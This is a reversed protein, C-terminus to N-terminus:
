KESVAHLSLVAWMIGMISIAHETEVLLIIGTVGRIVAGGLSIKSEPYRIKMFINVIAYLIHAVGVLYPSYSYIRNPFVILM